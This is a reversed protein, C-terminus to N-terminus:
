RELRRRWASDRRHRRHLPQDLVAEGDGALLEYTEEVQDCGFRLTGELHRLHRWDVDPADRDNRLVHLCADHLTRLARCVEEVDFGQARRREALDRCYSTFIGPDQIRISSMLQRLALQHNWRAEGSELGTYSPMTERAAEFRASIWAGIQEQRQELVRVIRLNTATRVQHRPAENRRYWEWPDTARNELLFPLRRVIALRERPAWGLRERTRHADVRMQRDIHKAMWPREFVDEGITSALWCRVHIGLRCLPKPVITPDVPEGIRWHTVEEFLQRTSTAGDPSCILIPESGGSSRVAEVDELARGVFRVADRVHLYPIAFEGRGGLVRWPGRQEIWTELFHFLPAYECWDSFLAAFRLIVSPFADRYEGLMREGIRKTVSYVHTGDPPSSEDLVRGRPPFDSAAVSSAFYFVGPRLERCLDLVNRLGDVNTRWYESPDDGDFDYHAALHLVADVRGGDRITRFVDALAERDGIDVQYWTLDPHEPIGSVVPSRRAIGVIRYHDRLVALIRSGLFGSCGTILLRPRM